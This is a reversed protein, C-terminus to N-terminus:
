PIKNTIQNVNTNITKEFTVDYKICNQCCIKSAVSFKRYRTSVLRRTPVMKSKREGKGDNNWGRTREM